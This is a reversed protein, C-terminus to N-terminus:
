RFKVIWERNKWFFYRKNSRSQRITYLSHNNQDESDKSDDLKKQSVAKFKRNGPARIPGKIDYYSMCYPRNKEDGVKNPIRFEQINETLPELKKTAWWKLLCVGSKMMTEIKSVSHPLILQQEVCNYHIHPSSCQNRQHAEKLRLAIDIM